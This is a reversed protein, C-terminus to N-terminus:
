QVIQESNIDSPSIKKSSSVKKGKSRTKKDSTKSEDAAAAVTKNTKANKNVVPAKKKLVKSVPSRKASVKKATKSSQKQEKEPKRQTASNQPKEKTTISEEKKNIKKKEKPSVKDNDTKKNTSKSTIKNTTVKNIIKKKSPSISSSPAPTSSPLTSKKVASKKAAVKKGSPQQETQPPTQTISKVGIKALTKNTTKTRKNAANSKEVDSSSEKTVPPSQKKQTVIKAKGANGEKNAPKEAVKKKVSPSEKTTAPTRSKKTEILAKTQPSDQEQGKSPTKRTVKKAASLKKTVAPSATLTSTTETPSVLAKDISSSNSSSPSLKTKMNTKTTSKKVNIKVIPIKTKKSVRETKPKKDSDETQSKKIKSSKVVEKKIKFDALPIGNVMKAAQAAAEKAEQAALKQAEKAELRKKKRLERAEKMKIAKELDEQELNRYEYPNHQSRVKKLYLKKDFNIDTDGGKVLKMFVKLNILGEYRVKWSNFYREKTKEIPFKWVRPTAFIQFLSKNDLKIDFMSEMVNIREEIDKPSHQLLVGEVKRTILPILQDNTLNIREKIYKLTEVIKPLKEFNNQKWEGFFFLFLKDPLNNSIYFNYQQIFDEVPHQFINSNAHQIKLYKLDVVRYGRTETLFQMIPSEIVSDPAYNASSRGNNLRLIPVICPIQNVLPKNTHQLNSIVLSHFFSKNVITIYIPSKIVLKLTNKSRNLINFLWMKGEVCCCALLIIKSVIKLNRTNRSLFVM